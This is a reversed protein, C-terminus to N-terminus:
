LATQEDLWDLIKQRADSYYAAPPLDKVATSLLRLVALAAAANRDLFTQSRWKGTDRDLWNQSGDPAENFTRCIEEAAAKILPKM